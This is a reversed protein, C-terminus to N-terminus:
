LRTESASLAPVAQRFSDLAQQLSTFGEFVSGFGTLDLVDQVSKGLTCLKVHQQPQSGSDRSIAHLAAWGQEQGFHSDGSFLLAVQHIAALGASSIFTLKSLELILDRAGDEYVQQAEEILSEFNSGDLKGELHLITVPVPEETKTITIFM